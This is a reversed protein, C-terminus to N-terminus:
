NILPWNWCSLRWGQGEVVLAAVFGPASRLEQLTWRSAEKVDGDVSTLRAPEGPVLSVDIQNLPRTLGEGSAKLYAEKSTWYTFFAKQKKEETLARFEANERESFYHDVIQETEAIYHIPELDVGLERDRTVAYLALGDAHTM